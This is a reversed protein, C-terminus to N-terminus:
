RSGKFDSQYIHGDLYVTCNQVCEYLSDWVEKGTKIDLLKFCGDKIVVQAKGRDEWEDWYEWHIIDGEYIDDGINDKMDSCLMVDKHEIKYKSLGQWFQVYDNYFTVDHDKSFIFIYGDRTKIPARIKKIM